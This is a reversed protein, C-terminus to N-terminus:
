PTVALDDAAVEHQDELFQELAAAVDPDGGMVLHEDPLTQTNDVLEPQPGLGIFELHEVAHGLIQAGHDHVM